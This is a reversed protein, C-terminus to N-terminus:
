SWPLRCGSAAAREVTSEVPERPAVDVHEREDAISEIERVTEGRQLAGLHPGHELNQHVDRALLRAAGARGKM